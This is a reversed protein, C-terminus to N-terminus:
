LDQFCDALEMASQQQSFFKGTGIPKPYEKKSNWRYSKGIIRNTLIGKIKNKALHSSLYEEECELDADIPKYHTIMNPRVRLVFRWPEIFEYYVKRTKGAFCYEEKKIFCQKEADSLKLKESNWEYWYIRRLKQERAVYIKKGWKRKKKLFKRVPSYMNTNIKRLLEEFFEGQKSRKVDDRVVFFRVFGRQYPEELPIWPINCRIICLENRRKYKQRIQKEIDKKITRKRSRLSRLRYFLLQDDAM